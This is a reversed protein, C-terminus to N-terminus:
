AASTLLWASPDAVVTLLTLTANVLEALDAAETIARAADPSGDTPVLINRFVEIVESEVPHSTFGPTAQLREMGRMSDAAM